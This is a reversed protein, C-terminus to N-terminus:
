QELQFEIRVHKGNETVFSHPKELAEVSKVLCVITIVDFDDESVESTVPHNDLSVDLVREGPMYKEVINQIEKRTMIRARGDIGDRAVAIASVTRLEQVEKTASLEEARLVGTRRGDM